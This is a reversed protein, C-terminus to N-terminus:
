KIANKFESIKVSCSVRFRMNCIINSVEVEGIEAIELEVNLSFYRCGHRILWNQLENKINILENEIIIQEVRWYVGFV